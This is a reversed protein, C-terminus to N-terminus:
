ARFVRSRRRFARMAARSPAPGYRLATYHKALAAFRAGVEQDAAQVRAAFALAGESAGKVLGRRALRALARDFHRVLPDVARHRRWSLHALAGLLVAGACLALLVALGQWGASHLGFRELLGRQRDAGYGLVWQNWGHNTADLLQRAGLFARGLWSADSHVRADERAPLRAGTSVRQPPIVTTPDIRVWGQGSLFVEAWAHADSQRVALHGGIPNLEGGFYGTVVRAPLGATRMLVVFAAAYHECFGTRTEFLFEDVPDAGLTPPEHSYFFEEERFLRLAAAVRQAEGLEADLWAGALERALPHRGPPLALALARERPDLSRIRAAPFSSAEYRRLQDVPRHALVQMDPTLLAGPPLAGPLDLMFLWHRGHPQLTVAYNVAPGNSDLQPQELRRLSGPPLATWRRGDTQWLVPGRWYLDESAPVGDMFEVRFAVESSESLQSVDGISMSESLGTRASHEQVTVGWLSGSLRPFLVFLIVMLPVAQVLLDAARRVYQGSLRAEAGPHNLVVLATTLIVVAFLLYIGSIISQDFLFGTAVLFYALLIVVTADRLGRMEVLKLSLMVALLAVGAEPGVLTGYSLFVVLLGGVTLTLRLGAGPLGWGRLDRLLRWGMAAVCLLGLWPPLRLLHPAVVVALGGVLWLWALRTVEPAPATM